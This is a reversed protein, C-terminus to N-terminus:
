TATLIVPLIAALREYQARDNYAAASLRLLRQWRHGQPRQPWPAIMTQFGAALLPGHVADGYLDVDAETGPHPAWGLSVSAMSGIMEEPAAPEAGIPAGVLGRAELALARNRARLAPWGGDILSAGFDIAAPVALWASPDATGLWDFELRFPSRDQRLSNAGHSIVLPRIGPQRDPGVWLFASGKPACAWKHLNGTYYTAGLRAVELEVMGPAHAGDILTDVGRETLGAVLEAVPLLLGTASTVHDLVALRTRPTVAALVAAVAEAPSAIPFPVTAVVVRADWQAAVYDLANRVANYEHDTTLLEDGPEFRLSRLVTNVGTTANTIFALDDPAAGVFRGLTARAADLAPELREVMFRVPEHELQLRWTQQAELVARPTAGYSGHNLFDIRPDLPWHHAHESPM